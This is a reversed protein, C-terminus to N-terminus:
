SVGGQGIGNLGRLLGALDPMPEALLLVDIAESRALRVLSAVCGDNKRVNWFLVGLAM